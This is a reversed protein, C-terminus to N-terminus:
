GPMLLKELKKAGRSPIIRGSKLDVAALNIRSWGKLSFLYSKEYSYGRIKKEVEGDLGEELVMVGNIISCMHGDGPTVYIKMIDKLFTDFLFLAEEKLKGEFIKVVFYENTEYSDIVDKPTLFTRVHKVHCRAFLDAREGSIIRKKELDFYPKLRKSLMELYKGSDM